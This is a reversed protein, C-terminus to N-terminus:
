EVDPLPANWPRQLSIPSCIAPCNLFLRTSPAMMVDAQPELVRQPAAIVAAISLAPKGTTWIVATGVTLRITPTVLINRPM